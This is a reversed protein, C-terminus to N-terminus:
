EGAAVIEVCHHSRRGTPPIRHMAIGDRIGTFDENWQRFQAPVNTM